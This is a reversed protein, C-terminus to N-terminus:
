GDQLSPFGGLLSDDTVPSRVVVALAEQISLHFSFSVCCGRFRQTTSVGSATGQLM